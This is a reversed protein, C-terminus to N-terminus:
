QLRTGAGALRIGLAEPGLEIQHPLHRGELWVVRQNKSSFIQM